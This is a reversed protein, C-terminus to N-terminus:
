QFKRRKFAAVDALTLKFWEGNARRDAFRRHWYAEIGAPDDTRISHALTAKDPLALRIEKVRRELEDSRGVKYFDGSQILYVHGEAGKPPVRGAAPTSDVAPLMAAIDAYAPDEAARKALAAVLQARRGFHRKVAKDTPASPNAQRYIMLENQTPLRGYYRIGAIVGNLVADSDLRRGWENPLFGAETLADSWRAWLKGAWMHAAIGTEREFLKQGPPQGNAAALRRIEFLIQERMEVVIGTTTFLVVGDLELM